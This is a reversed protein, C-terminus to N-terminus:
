VETTAAPAAPQPWAAAPRGAWLWVIFDITPPEVGLARLRTCVQGRHHATHLAVQAISEGLTHVAAPGGTWRAEFQDTWPERLPEDLRVADLGDVFAAVRTSGERAYAALADLTPFDTEPRISLAQRQWAALFIHQVMHVHHLTRRIAADDRTGDSSLVASWVVADAWAM